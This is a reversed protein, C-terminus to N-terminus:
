GCDDFRNRTLYGSRWAFFNRIELRAQWSAAARQPL